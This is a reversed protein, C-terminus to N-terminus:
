GILPPGDEAAAARDGREGAAIEIVDGEVIAWARDGPEISMPLGRTFRSFAPLVGIRPGFHFCPLRMAGRGDELSLTPHLHGALVYRGRLAQPHHAFAFPAEDIVGDRQDIGWAAPLAGEAPDHNGRVLVIPVQVRDLRARVLEDLAPTIGSRAHVFDGLVVIREAGTRAAAAALRDFSEEAIGGPIAVGLSRYVESKGLHVDAIVLTSRAAWWIAREPLLELREGRIQVSQVRM